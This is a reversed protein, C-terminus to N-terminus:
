CYSQVQIRQGSVSKRSQCQCIQLQQCTMITRILKLQAMYFQAFYKAITIYMDYRYM